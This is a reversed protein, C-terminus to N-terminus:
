NEQELKVNIYDVALKVIKILLKCSIDSSESNEIMVSVENNIEDLKSTVANLSILM